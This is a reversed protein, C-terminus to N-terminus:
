RWVSPIMWQGPRNLAVPVEVNTLAVASVVDSLLVTHLKGEQGAPLRM